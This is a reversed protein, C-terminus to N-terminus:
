HSFSSTQARTKQFYKCTPFYKIELINYSKAHMFIFKAHKYFRCSSSFVKTMCSYLGPMPMITFNAYAHSSQCILFKQARFHKHNSYTIIAPCNAKRNTFVYSSRM